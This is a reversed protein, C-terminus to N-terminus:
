FRGTLRFFGAYMSLPQVNAGAVERTLRRVGELEFTLWTRIDMRVGIGLSRMPIASPDPLGAVGQDWARGIDAFAYFQTPLGEAAAENLRLESTARLEISGIVARDGTVEGPYFGRGLRDGGLFYKEQQPLVDGSYQGAVVGLADFAWRGATFLAQLRSVEATWKTFGPDAGPRPTLATVDDSSAGLGDIGRHFTARLGTIGFWEDRLSAEAGLRVTRYRGETRQLFTRQSDDQSEGNYMDFQGTLAVTTARSRILPYSAGIGAIFVHGEYDVSSLPTGPLTRGYGAFGRLSLGSSGLFGSLNLQVFNQEERQEPQGRLATTVVLLEAREGFRTFSNLGGLAFLQTPGQQRSQRNDYVLVGDHTRRSVTVVMLPAGDVTGPRLTAAASVGPIDNALLLARELTAVSLPKEALLPALFARVQAIVPGIEGEYEIDAIAGEIARLRVVGDEIRSPVVVRSLFYGADLYFRELRQALAYIEAVSIERGVLPETEARIREQPIATAGELVIGRPTFRVAEAGPPIPLVGPAAPVPVPAEPRPEPAPTPLRPPALVPAPALQAQPGAFPAAALLLGLLSGRGAHRRMCLRLRTM